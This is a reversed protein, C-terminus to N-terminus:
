VRPGKNSGDPDIALIVGLDNGGQAYKAHIYINFIFGECQGEKLPKGDIGSRMYNRCRVAPFGGVTLKELDYFSKNPTVPECPPPLSSNDKTELFWIPDTNDGDHFDYGVADLVITFYSMYKDFQINEFGFGAFEPQKEPDAGQALTLLREQTENLGAADIESFWRNVSWVGDKVGIYLLMVHNIKDGPGVTKISDGFAM